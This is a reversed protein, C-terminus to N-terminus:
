KAARETLFKPTESFRGKRKARRLFQVEDVLIPQPTPHQAFQKTVDDDGGGWRCTVRRNAQGLTLETQVGPPAVEIV